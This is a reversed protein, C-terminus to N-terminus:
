SEKTMNLLRSLSTTLWWSFPTMVCPAKKATMSWTSLWLSCMSSTLNSLFRLQNVRPFVWQNHLKTEYNLCLCATILIKNDYFVASASVKVKWVEFNERFIGISNVKKIKLDIFKPLIEKFSIIGIFRYIKNTKM